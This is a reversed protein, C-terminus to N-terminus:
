ALINSCLPLHTFELTQFSYMIQYTIFRNIKKSIIKIPIEANDHQIASLCCPRPRANTGTTSMRRQLSRLSMAMRQALRFVSYDGKVANHTIAERIDALGDTDGMGLEKRLCALHWELSERTDIQAKKNPWDLAKRPSVVANFDAQFTVPVKFFDEYVSVPMRAAHRFQVRALVDNGFYERIVRVGLGVCVEGGVGDDIEDFPHYMQLIAETTTNISELDFQDSFMDRNQVILAYMTRMDPAMSVFRWPSGFFTFPVIRALDLFLNKKSPVKALLRFVELMFKEPIRTNPDMLATPSLGTEKTIREFPVGVSAAFFTAINGPIALISHKKPTENPSSM